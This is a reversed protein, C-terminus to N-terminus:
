QGLRIWSCQVNRTCLTSLWFWSFMQLVVVAAVGSAAFRTYTDIVYGQMCQLCVMSGASFIVMGINPMIWHVRAQASWGYWFLGVPLLVSGVFTPPIRFEPRGVDNNNNKLRRYIQDAVRANVQSGLTYGLGLSLYNLGGIGVTEGYASQWLSPYTSIILYFSGFIYALYAAIAQVIPQTALLRFPRVLAAGLVKGLTKDSDYETHLNNNGTEQRLRDVKRKLLTPAYAEQLFFAGIIQILVSTISTAWFVWRWSVNEAIFGGAIPGM